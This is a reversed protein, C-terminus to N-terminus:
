TGSAPGAPGHGVGPRPHGNRGGYNPTQSHCNPCLFKLNRLRNDHPDGNVHHLAMTLPKGVWATIGCEECRNEKLGADLLRLKLHSRQTRRGVVLLKELPILSERPVLDGRKIAQRWTEACFGFRKLCQRMSLAETDIARQVEGWDYRLAFRPDARRGLKRVHYAVTSKTLGLERAIQIQTFGKRILAEVRDRTARGLEGSSRTRPFLDGRVAAKDWAGYSFGFRERCEDITHGQDYYNQVARWDTVSRRRRADPYGLLRSYRTVTSPSVGLRAAIEVRPVGRELLARMREKM